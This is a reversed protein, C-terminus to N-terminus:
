WMRAQIPSYFLAHFQRHRAAGGGPGPLCCVGRLDHHSGPDGGDGPCHVRADFVCAPSNEGKATPRRFTVLPPLAGAVLRVGRPMFARRHLPPQRSNSLPISRGLSIPFLTDERAGYCRKACSAADAALPLPRAM